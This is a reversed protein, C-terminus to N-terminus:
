YCIQDYVHACVCVRVCMNTSITDDGVSAVVLSSLTQHFSSRIQFSGPSSSALDVIGGLHQRWRARQGGGAFSLNHYLNQYLNLHLPFLNFLTKPHYLATVTGPCRRMVFRMGECHGLGSHVCLPIAYTLDLKTFNSVVPSECSM